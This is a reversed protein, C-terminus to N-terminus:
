PTSPAFSLDGGAAGGLFFGKAVGQKQLAVGSFATMGDAQGASFAGTLRGTKPNIRGNIIGTGAQVLNSATNLTVQIVTPSTAIAGGSLTFTERSETEGFVNQKHGTQSYHSGESSLVTVFGQPFSDDTSGARIHLLSGEIDSQTALDNPSFKLNGTFQEKVSSALRQFLPLVGDGTLIGKTVLKTGDALIGNAVVAGSPKVSITAWGHGRPSVMEGVAPALALTYLGAGPAPHKSSYAARLLSINFHHGNISINGGVSGGNLPTYQLDVALPMPQASTGFDYTRVLAGNPAFTDSFTLREIKVLALLAAAHESVQVAATFRGTSTLAVTMHFPDIGGDSATGLGIYSGSLDAFINVVFHATLTLSSEMTFSLKPEPSAIGGSWGAFLYGPSAKATISYKKGLVRPTNGLFGKTVTGAGSPGDVSVSLTNSGAAADHITLTETTTGGLTGGGTPTGLTFVVTEDGETLTDPGLVVQIVKTTEGAAFHLPSPPNVAYDSTKQATGGITYPLNVAGSSGGTRSVTLAVEDGETGSTAASTFQFQGVANSGGDVVTITAVDLLAAGDVLRLQLTKGAATGAKVPVTLTKTTTDGDAFSVSPLINSSPFDDDYYAESGLYFSGTSGGTRTISITVTGGGSPATYNSQSFRFRGSVAAKEDDLIYIRAETIPTSFQDPEGTDNELRLIVSENEELATDNFIPVAILKETEGPGFTLIQDFATYESGPSAFGTSGSFDPTFAHVSITGETGGLRVIKVAEPLLPGGSEMVAYRSAAVELHGPHVITYVQTVEASTNGSNDRAFATVQYDGSDFLRSLLFPYTNVTWQYTDGAVGRKAPLSASNVFPTAGWKGFTTLDTANWYKGDALRKLTYRIMAVDSGDAAADTVTGGIALQTMTKPGGPATLTIAPAATDPSIQDTNAGWNVDYLSGLYGWTHTTQSFDALSTLVVGASGLSSFRAGDPSVSLRYFTNTLYPVDHALEQTGGNVADLSLLTTSYVYKQQVVSRNKRIAILHRADPMWAPSGYEIDTDTNDDIRNTVLGRPASVVGDRVEAVSIAYEVQPGGGRYYGLYSFGPTATAPSWLPDVFGASAVGANYDPLIDSLDKIFISEGKDGYYRYAISSGSPSFTPNWASTAADAGPGAVARLDSGDPAMTYVTSDTRVALRTGQKNWAVFLIGNLVDGNAKKPALKRVGWGTPNMTYIDGAAALALRGSGAPPVPVPVTSGPGASPNFDGGASRTLQLGNGGLVDTMAIYEPTTVISHTVPDTYAGYGNTLVSQGDVTFAVKSDGYLGPLVSLKTDDLANYISITPGSDYGLVAYKSGDVSYTRVQKVVQDGSGDPNISHSVDASQYFFIKEGQPTKNWTALFQGPAFSGIHEVSGTAPTFICLRSVQDPLPQAVVLIRTGDPSWAPHRMQRGYNSLKHLGTGDVNVVYLDYTTYPDPIGRHSIFAVKTGDPSLAPDIDDESEYTLRQLGTGDLNELYIEQNFDARKSSFAM